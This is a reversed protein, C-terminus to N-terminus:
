NTGQFRVAVASYQAFSGGCSSICKQFNMMEGAVSIRRKADENYKLFYGLVLIIYKHAYSNGSQDRGLDSELFHVASQNCVCELSTTTRKQPQLAGYESIVQALMCATHAREGTIMM